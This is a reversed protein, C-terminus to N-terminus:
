SNNRRLLPKCMRQARQEKSPCIVYQCDRLWAGAAVVIRTFVSKLASYPDREGARV